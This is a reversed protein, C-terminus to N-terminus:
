LQILAVQHLLPVKSVWVLLLWLLGSPSSIAKLHLQKPPPSIHNGRAIDAQKCGEALRKKSASSQSSHEGQSVSPVAQSDDTLDILEPDSQTDESTQAAAEAPASGVEFVVLMYPLVNNDVIAGTAQPQCPRSVEPKVTTLVTKVVCSRSAKQFAAHIEDVSCLANALSYGMIYYHTGYGQMVESNVPVAALQGLSNSLEQTQQALWSDSCLWVVSQKYSEVEELGARFPKFEFGAKTSVLDKSDCLLLPTSQTLSTIYQMILQLQVEHSQRGLETAVLKSPLQFPAYYTQESQWPFLRCVFALKLVLSDCCPAHRLSVHM